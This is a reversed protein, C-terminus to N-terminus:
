NFVVLLFLVVVLGISLLLISSTNGAGLQVYRRIAAKMETKSIQRLLRNFAWLTVIVMILLFLTALIGVKVVLLVIVAAMAIVTVFGRAVTNAFTRVNNTQMMSDVEAPVTRRIDADVVSRYSQDKKGLQQLSTLLLKLIMLYIMILIGYAFLMPVSIGNSTLPDM